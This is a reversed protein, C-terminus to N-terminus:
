PSAGLVISPLAACISDVAPSTSSDGPDAEELAIAAILDRTVGSLCERSGQVWLKRFGIDALTYDNLFFEVVSKLGLFSDKSDIPPEDRSVM